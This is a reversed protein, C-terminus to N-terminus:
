EKVSDGEVCSAAKLSEERPPSSMESRAEQPSSIHPTSTAAKSGRDDGKTKSETGMSTTDTKSTVETQPKHPQQQKTSKLSVSSLQVDSEKTSLEKKASGGYRHPTKDDRYQDVTSGYKAMNHNNSTKSQCDSITIEPPPEPTCMKGADEDKLIQEEETKRAVTKKRHFIWFGFFILFSLIVVVVLLGVLVAILVASM